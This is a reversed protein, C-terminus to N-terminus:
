LYVTDIPVQSEITLKYAAEDPIINFTYGTKFAKLNSAVAQVPVPKKTEEWKM